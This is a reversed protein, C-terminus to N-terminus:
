PGSCGGWADLVILIDSVGVTGSGDVDADCDGEPPCAGWAAIVALIDSVNILGDGTADGLCQCEDPVGDQNVDDSFGSDIDCYDPQLNANCDQPSPPMVGIGVAEGLTAAHVYYRRKFLGTQTDYCQVSTNGEGCAVFVWRGDHSRTMGNPDYLGWYGDDLGGIDWRGLYATTEYDYARIAIDEDTVLLTGDELLVTDRPTAPADGVLPTAFRVFDAGQEDFELVVGLGSAVLVTGYPTVSLGRPNVLMSNTLAYDLFAEADLDFRYVSDTGDCGILLHGDGTLALTVPTEIDHDGSPFLPGLVAGTSGDIAVVTDNAADAVLVTGDDTVVLERADGITGSAVEAVPVGSYAHFRMIGDGGSVWLDLGGALQEMDPVGNADCDECADLRANRNLDLTMDLLIESYDSEWNENCDEECVDPVGNGNVDSAEGLDIDLDDPVSNGNCDPQCEDPVGDGNLDQSTGSAIDDPDLVSNFNCDQCEDPVGDVNADASSGSSIDEHDPVNNGNCDEPLCGHADLATQVVDQIVTHFRPDINANGGVTIHCYSMITGRSVTGSACSDIGYDHTHWTGVNHGLEHATVILDWNGFAPSQWDVISGLIYGAVSYGGSTCVSNLSAVGGYPLNTRGTLFQALDRDVHDMNTEWYNSFPGFPNNENFLDDQTTWIRVFTLELHTDMDRQYIDSVAGYLVLVYEMAAVEDGFNRYFEWDTEVALQLRRSRHVVDSGALPIVPARENSLGCIAVGLPPMASEIQSWVGNPTISWRHGDGDDLWGVVGITDTVALFVHSDADGAIQGSFLAVSAPDFAKTTDRGTASTRTVWTTGPTAVHFRTLELDVVDGGPVPIAEV